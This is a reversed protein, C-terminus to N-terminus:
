FTTIQGGNSKATTVKANETRYAVTGGNAEAEITESAKIEIQANLGAKAKAHKSALAAGDYKANSVVATAEVTQSEAEGSISVLASNISVDLRKVYVELNTETNAGASVTLSEREIPDQTEVSAGSSVSIEDIDVYTVIVQVAAGQPRRKMKVFLTEKKIEAAVDELACGDVNVEMETQKGQTLSINVGKSANIKKFNGLDRMETQQAQCLAAMALLALTLKTKM